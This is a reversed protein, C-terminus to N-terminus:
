VRAVDWRSGAALRIVAGSDLKRFDLVGASQLALSLARPGALVWQPVLTDHMRCWAVVVPAAIARLLDVATANSARSM